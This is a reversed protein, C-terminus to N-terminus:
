LFCKETRFIPYKKVSCSGIPISEMIALIHPWLPGHSAWPSMPGHHYQGLPNNLGMPINPGILEWSPGMFPGFTAKQPHCIRGLPPGLTYQPDILINPAWLPTDSCLKPGNLAIFPGHPAMLPWSPGFPYTQPGFQGM